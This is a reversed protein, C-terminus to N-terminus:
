YDSLVKFGTFGVMTLQSLAIFKWGGLYMLFQKYSEIGVRSDELNEDSMMKGSKADASSASSTSINMSRQREVKSKRKENNRSESSARNIQLILDNPEEGEDETHGEDGSALSSSNSSDISSDLDDLNLPDNM